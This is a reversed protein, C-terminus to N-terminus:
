EAILGSLEFSTMNNEEDFRIYSFYENWFLHESNNTWKIGYRLETIDKPNIPVYWLKENFIEILKEKNLPALLDIGELSYSISNAKAAAICDEDLRLHSIKCDELVVDEVKDGYLTISGIVIDDKVLIYQAYPVADSDYKLGKEVFVSRDAPYKKFVGSSLLEEYDLGPEFRQKIYIDFGDEMVDGATTQTITITKDNITFIPAKQPLGVIYYAIMVFIVLMFSVLLAIMSKGTRKRANFLAMIPPLIILRALVAAGSGGMQLVRMAFIGAIVIISLYVLIEGLGMRDTREEDNVAQEILSEGNVTAHKMYCYMGLGISIFVLGLGAVIGILLLKAM